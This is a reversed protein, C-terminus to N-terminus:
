ARRERWVGFGLLAALALLPWAWGPLGLRGEAAAEVVDLPMSGVAEAGSVLAGAVDEDAAGSSAGAARDSDGSGSASDGGLGGGVGASAPDSGRASADAGVRGRREAARERRLAEYARDIDRLVGAIQQRCESYEDLDAPMRRVAEKLERTTYTGGGIGGNASCKRLVDLWGAQAAPPAPVAALGAFAVAVAFAMLGARRTM